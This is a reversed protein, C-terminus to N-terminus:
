TDLHCVLRGFSEAGIQNSRVEIIRDRIRCEEAATLLYPETRRWTGASNEDSRNKRGNIRFKLGINYMLIPNFLYLATM